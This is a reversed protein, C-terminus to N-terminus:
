KVTSQKKSNLHGIKVSNSTRFIYENGKVREIGFESSM